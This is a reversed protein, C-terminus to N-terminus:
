TACIKNAHTGSISIGLDGISGLASFVVTLTRSEAPGRRSSAVSTLSWRFIMWSSVQLRFLHLLGPPAGSFTCWRGKRLNKDSMHYHHDRAKCPVRKSARGEYLNNCTDPLNLWLLSLQFSLRDSWNFSTQQKSHFLCDTSCCTKLSMHIVSEGYTAVSNSSTKILVTSPNAMLLFCSKCFSFGGSSSRVEQSRCVDSLAVWFCCM